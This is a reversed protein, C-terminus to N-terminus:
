KGLQARAGEWRLPLCLTASCWFLGRKCNLCIEHEGDAVPSSVVGTKHIYQTPMQTINPKLDFLDAISFRVKSRINKSLRTLKNPTRSSSAKITLVYQTVVTANSKDYSTTSMKKSKSSFTGGGM